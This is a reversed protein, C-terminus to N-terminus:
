RRTPRRTMRGHGSWPLVVMGVVAVVTGAVVSVTAALVLGAAIVSLGAAFRAPKSM